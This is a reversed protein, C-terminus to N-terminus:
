EALRLTIWHGVKRWALESIHLSSSTPMDGIM